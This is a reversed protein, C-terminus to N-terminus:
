GTLVPAYDYAASPASNSRVMWGIMSGKRGWLPWLLQSCRHSLELEGMPWTHLGRLSGHGQTSVGELSVLRQTAVVTLQDRRQPSVSRLSMCRYVCSPSQGQTIFARACLCRQM